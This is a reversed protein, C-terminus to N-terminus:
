FISILLTFLPRCCAGVVCRFYQVVARWVSLLLTQEHWRVESLFCEHKAFRRVQRAEGADLSSGYEGIEKKVSFFM